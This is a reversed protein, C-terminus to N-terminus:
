LMSIMRVLDVHENGEWEALPNAEVTGLVYYVAAWCLKWQDDGGVRGLKFYGSKDLFIDFGGGRLDSLQVSCEKGPKSSSVIKDRLVNLPRTWGGGNSVGIRHLHVTEIRHGIGDFLRVLEEETFAIGELSLRRIRRFCTTAFTSGVPSFLMHYRVMPTIGKLNVKVDELAPSSLVASLYGNRYAQNQSSM